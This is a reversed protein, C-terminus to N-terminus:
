CKISLSHLLLCQTLLRHFRIASMSLMRDDLAMDNIAFVDAAGVIEFPVDCLLMRMLIHQRLTWLINCARTGWMSTLITVWHASYLHCLFKMCLLFMSQRSSWRLFCPLLHSHFLRKWLMPLFSISKLIRRIVHFTLSSCPLMLWILPPVLRFVNDLIFAVNYPLLRTRM